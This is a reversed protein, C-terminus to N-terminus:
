VSRGQGGDAVLNVGTVFAAPESCLFAVVAGIEEPEALRGVPIESAIARLVQM